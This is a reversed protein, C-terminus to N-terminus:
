QWTITIAIFTDFASKIVLNYIIVNTMRLWTPSLADILTYVVIKTCEVTIMNMYIRRNDYMRYNDYVRMRLRWMLWEVLLFPAAIADCFHARGWQRWRDSPRVWHDSKFPANNECVMYWHCWVFLISKAPWECSLVMYHSLTRNGYFVNLKLHSFWIIWKLLFGSYNLKIVSHIRGVWAILSVKCMVQFNVWGRSVDLGAYM